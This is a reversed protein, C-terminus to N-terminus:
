FTEANQIEMNAVDEKNAKLAFFLYTLSIVMCLFTWGTFELDFCALIKDVIFAPTISLIALRYITQFSFKTELIAQFILGILSYILAQFARYLFICPIIILYMLISIYKAKSAWSLIKEHTLTFDKIQALTYEQNEFANKRVIVKRDTVLVKATTNELSTYEGSDDFIAVDEGTKEDKMIYPSPKDFSAVGDHIEVVPFKQVVQPLETEVFTSIGVHVKTMLPIWFIAIMLLLYLLGIKDTEMKACYTYVNKNYFSHFIKKFFPYSNM